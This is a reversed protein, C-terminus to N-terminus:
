KRELTRDQCHAAAAARLRYVHALNLVAKSWPNTIMILDSEDLRGAFHPTIQARPREDTAIALEAFLEGHAAELAALFRAAPDPESSVSLDLTAHADVYQIWKAFDLELGTCSGYGARPPKEKPGVGPRGPDLEELRQRRVLHDAWEPYGDSELGVDLLAPTAFFNEEAPVEKPVLSKLDEDEGIEALHDRAQELAKAGRTNAIKYFVMASGVVVCILVAYIILARKGFLKKLRFAM